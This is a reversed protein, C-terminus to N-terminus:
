LYLQFGILELCNGYKDTMRYEAWEDGSIRHKMILKDIFAEEGYFATQRIRHKCICDSEAFCWNDSYGTFGYEKARKMLFVKWKEYTTLGNQTAFGRAYEKVCERKFPYTKRALPGYGTQDYEMKEEVIATSRNNPDVVRITIGSRLPCDPEYGGSWKSTSTWQVFESNFPLRAYVRRPDTVSRFLDVSGQEAMFTVAITKVGSM